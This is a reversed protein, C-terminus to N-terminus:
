TLRPKKYDPSNGETPGDLRQRMIKPLKQLEPKWGFRLNLIRKIAYIRDGLEMLDEATLTENMAMGLLKAVSPVPPNYFQCINMANYLQRYSQLRAMPEGIGLDAFRDDPINTVGVEPYEVGQQVMYADGNVHCAGRPSTLYLIAMGSFARPDHFPAELGAIQPALELYHYREALLKSGEALFNGIGNRFAIM